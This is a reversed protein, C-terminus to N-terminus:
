DAYEDVLNLGAAQLREYLSNMREHVARKSAEDAIDAIWQSHKRGELYNQCDAILKMVADLEQRTM